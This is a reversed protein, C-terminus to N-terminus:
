REDGAQFTLADRYVGPVARGNVTRPAYRARMAARCVADDLVLFGSSKVITCKVPAGREDVSVEFATTGEANEYYAIAPPHPVIAYEGGLPVADRTIGPAPMVAISEARQPAPPATGVTRLASVSREDRQSPDTVAM